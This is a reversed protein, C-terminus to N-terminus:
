NCYTPGLERVLSQVRAGPMLWQVVLSTRLTGKLQLVRPTELFDEEKRVGQPLQDLKERKHLSYLFHLMLPIEQEMSSVELGGQDVPSGQIGVGHLCVTSAEGGSAWLM